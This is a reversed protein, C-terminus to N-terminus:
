RAALRQQIIKFKAFDDQSIRLLWDQKEISNRNFRLARLALWVKRVVVFEADALAAFHRHLFREVQRRAKSVRM